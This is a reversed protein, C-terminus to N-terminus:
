LISCKGLVFYKALVHVLFICFTNNLSTNWCFIITTTESNVRSSGLCFIEESFSFLLECDVVQNHVIFYALWCNWLHSGPSSM